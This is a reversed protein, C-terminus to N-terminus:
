HRLQDLLEEVAGREQVEADGERQAVPRPSPRGAFVLEHDDPHEAVLMAVERLPDLEVAAEAHLAEVQEVVVVVLAVRRVRGREAGVLLM